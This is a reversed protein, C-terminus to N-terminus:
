GNSCAADAEFVTRALSPISESILKSTSVPIFASAVVGYSRTVTYASRQRMSPFSFVGRVTRAPGEAGRLLRSRRQAAMQRAAASEEGKMGGDDTEIVPVFLPAVNEAGAPYPPLRGV